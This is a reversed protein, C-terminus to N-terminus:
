SSSIVRPYLGTLLFMTTYANNFVESSNVNEVTGTDKCCAFQCLEVASCPNRGCHASNGVSDLPCFPYHLLDISTVDGPSAEM